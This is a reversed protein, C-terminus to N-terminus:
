IDRVFIISVMLQCQICWQNRGSGRDLGFYYIAFMESIAQGEFECSM